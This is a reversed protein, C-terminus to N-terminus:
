YLVDLNICCEISQNKIKMDHVYLAWGEHTQLVDLICSCNDFMEYCKM